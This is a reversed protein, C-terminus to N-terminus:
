RLEPLKSLDSSLWRRQLRAVTGNKILANVARNVPGILRTGKGVVVGYREGTRIV